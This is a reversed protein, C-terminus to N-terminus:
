TLARNLEQKYGVGASRGPKSAVPNQIQENLEM